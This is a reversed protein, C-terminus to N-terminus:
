FEMLDQGYIGRKRWGFRVGETFHERLRRKVDESLKWLENWELRRLEPGHREVITIAERDNLWCELALRNLAKLNHCIGLLVENDVECILTLELDQLNPTLAFLDLLLKKPVNSQHMKLTKLHSFTQPLTGLDMSADTNIQALHLQNLNPCSALFNILNNGVIRVGFLRFTELNPTQCRGFRTTPRGNDYATVELNKLTPM